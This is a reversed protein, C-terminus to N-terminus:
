DLLLPLIPNCAHADIFAEVIPVPFRYGCYWCRCSPESGSVDVLAQRDARGVRPRDVSPLHRTLEFALFRAITVPANRAEDPPVSFVTPLIRSLDRYLHAFAPLKTAYRMPDVLSLMRWYAQTLALDARLLDRNHDAEPASAGQVAAVNLDAPEWPANGLMPALSALAEIEVRSM